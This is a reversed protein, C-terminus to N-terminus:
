GMAAAIASLDQLDEGLGAPLIRCFEVVGAHARVAFASRVRAVWEEGLYRALSGLLIMDLSLIDALVACADAVATVNLEMVEKADADGGAALEVIRASPAPPNGFRHPYRWAALRGLAAAAAYGELSGRYGFAEPGDPRYRVHGLEGSRGHAGHYVAGDFVLGAGFGTGCTLYALRKATGGAGWRYEALACASADHEVRVPLGLERQLRDRLPIRDWGPLNPPSLVIGRQSDLPGGVAVGVGRVAPAGVSQVGPAGSSTQTQRLLSRGHEVLDAIMADPGRAADSPWAARRLVVGAGDGVAASCTTGGVNLGLYPGQLTENAAV